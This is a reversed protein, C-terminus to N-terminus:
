DCDPLDAAYQTTCSRSNQCGQSPDDGGSVADIEHPLLKRAMSKGLPQPKTTKPMMDEKNGGSITDCQLPFRLCSTSLCARQLHIPQDRLRIWRRKPGRTLWKRLCRLRDLVPGGPGACQPARALGPRGQFGAVAKRSSEADARPFTQAFFESSRWPAREPGGRNKRKFRGVPEVSGSVRRAM